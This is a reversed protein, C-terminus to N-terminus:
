QRDSATGAPDPAAAITAEIELGRERAAAAIVANIAAGVLLAVSSLYLWLLLLIVGGISGYTANASPFWVVYFRLAISTLLWAALAFASGPTLWYWPRRVPPALHYVLDIGVLIFLMGLPWQLIRWSATFLPGLGAWAAIAAGVREGFVLFLLAATTFLGFAATLVVSVILRRWWPRPRAVRYVVNLTRIVSRVGRSAGWLAAGAGASVLGGRAGRELEALTRALVSAADPPLVEEGYRLLRDMLGPVPLLGLLATLFLLMPFLAFLFYYSLAAARDLLEDAVIREWVHGALARVTLGGLGWPSVAWRAGPMGIGAAHTM